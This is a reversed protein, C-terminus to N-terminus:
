YELVNCAAEIGAKMAARVSEEDIGDIVIEFVGNADERIDSDVKDKLTVCM